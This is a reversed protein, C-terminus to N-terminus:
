LSGFTGADGADGADASDTAADAPPSETSADTSADSADSGADVIPDSSGGDDFCVDHRAAAALGADCAPDLGAADFNWPYPPCMTAIWVVRGTGGDDNPQTLCIASCEPPQDGVVVDVSATPDLCARAEDLQRALFIHSTDGCAYALAGAPPLLLFLYKKKV